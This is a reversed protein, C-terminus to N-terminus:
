SSADDKVVASVWRGPSYVAVTSPGTAPRGNMVALHGDRVVVDQGAEHKETRNSNVLVEVAM